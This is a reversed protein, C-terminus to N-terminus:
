IIVNIEMYDVQDSCNTPFLLALALAIIALFTLKLGSIRKTIPVFELGGEVMGDDPMQTQHHSDYSKASIKTKLDGNQM